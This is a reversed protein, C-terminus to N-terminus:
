KGVDSLKGADTKAFTTSSVEGKRYKDLVISRRASYAPTEGRPQVLDAPNDAMAALNRQTSCGLNYYPRNEGYAPDFAPGLDHPWLGCPGAEAVIKSYNIKIAALKGGEVPGYYRVGVGHPPVGAANLIALIERAADRAAIETSTGTPLDLIIGGTAERKWARTFALVDARQSPTLGGRNTGVFIEVTSDGEKLAIPHRKRYDNPISATTGTPTYCGALMVSVAIVALLRASIELGRRSAIPSLNASM